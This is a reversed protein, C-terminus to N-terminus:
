IQGTAKNTKANNINPITAAHHTNCDSGTGLALQYAIAAAVSGPTFSNAKAIDSYKRMQVLTEAVSGSAQNNFAAPNSMMSGCAVGALGSIAGLQQALKDHSSPPNM